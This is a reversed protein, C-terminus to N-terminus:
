AEISGRPEDVDAGRGTLEQGLGDHLDSGIRQQERNAIDIIERELERRQTVDELVVLRHAEGGIQIPTIVCGATFFSGDRHVCHMDRAFFEAETLRQNIESRIEEYESETYRTIVRGSKGILHRPEYGTVRTIAGNAMRITSSSDVVLVGERMADLIRAQIKLAEEGRRRVTVETSAVTLGTPQGEHMVLGVRNEFWRVEGDIFHRLEYTQPERTALARDYVARVAEREEAPLLDLISRGLLEEPSHGLIPRNAFQVRLDLDALLLLDPVSQTVARLRENTVTEFRRESDHLRQEIAKHATIEHASLLVAHVDAQALLNALTCDFWTCTGDRKLFRLECRLERADGGAVLSQFQERFATHDEAFIFELVGRDTLEAAGLGLLAVRRNCYLVTGEADLLLTLTPSQDLITRFVPSPTNADAAVGPAAYLDVLLERPMSVFGGIRAAM